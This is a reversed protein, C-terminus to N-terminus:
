NIQAIINAIYLQDRVTFKKTNLPIVSLEVNEQSINEEM